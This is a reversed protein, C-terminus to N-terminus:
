VTVQAGPQKMAIYASIVLVGVTCLGGVLAVYFRVREWEELSM